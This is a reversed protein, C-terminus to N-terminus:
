SRTQNGGQGHKGEKQAHRRRRGRQRDDSEAVAERGAQTEGSGLGEGGPEFDREPRATVVHGDDIGAYRSIGRTVPEGAEVPRDPGLGVRDDDLEAGVVGQPAGIRRDRALREIRNEGSQRGAPQRDEDGSHACGRIEAIFIGGGEVRDKGLERCLVLGDEIGEEKFADGALGIEVQLVADVRVAAPDVHDHFAHQRRDLRQDRADVRGASFGM